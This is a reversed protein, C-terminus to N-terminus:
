NSGVDLSLEEGVKKLKIGKLSCKTDHHSTETGSTDLTTLVYILFLRKVMKISQIEGDKLKLAEIKV